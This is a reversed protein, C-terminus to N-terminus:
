LSRLKSSVEMMAVSSSLELYSYSWPQTLKLLKLDMMELLISWFDTNQMSTVPFESFVPIIRREFSKM